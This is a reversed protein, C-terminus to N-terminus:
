DVTGFWLLTIVPGTFIYNDWLNYMSYQPSLELDETDNLVEPRFWCGWRIPYNSKNDQISKTCQVMLGSETGELSSCVHWDASNTRKTFQLFYLTVLGTRCASIFWSKTTSTLKHTYLTYLQWKQASAVFYKMVFQTPSREETEKEVQQM